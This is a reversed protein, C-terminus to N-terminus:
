KLLAFRLVYRAGEDGPGKGGQAHSGTGSFVRRRQPHNPTVIYDKRWKGNFAKASKLKVIHSDPVDIRYASTGIRKPLVESKTDVICEVHFDSPDTAFHWDIEISSPSRKHALRAAVAAVGILAPAIASVILLTRLRFQM